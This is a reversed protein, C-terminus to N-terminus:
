LFNTKKKRKVESKTIEEDSESETGKSKFKGLLIIVPVLVIGGIVTRIGNFAFPGILEMGSKQAVFSSGWILATLILMLDGRLKKSM